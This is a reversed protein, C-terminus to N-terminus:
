SKDEIRPNYAELLEKSGADPDIAENLAANQNITIEASNIKKLQKLEQLSQQVRHASSIPVKDYKEKSNTRKQLQTDSLEPM